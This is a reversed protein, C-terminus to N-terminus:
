VGFSRHAALRGCKYSRHVALRFEARLGSDVSYMALFLLILYAAAAFPGAASARVGAAVSWACLGCAFPRAFGALLKRRDGPFLYVAMGVRLLYAIGYSAVGAWAAGIAGYRAVALVTSPMFVSAEIVKCRADLGPRGVALLLPSITQTLGRFLGVMVLVALLPGAAEWKRGYLLRVLDNPMLAIPGVVALLGFAGVANGRQFARCLDAPSHLHVNSYAPLLVANLVRGLLDVPLSALRYAVLYSGLAVSGVYRAVVLNDFQTTIFTLLGIAFLSRGFTFCDRFAKRDMALAPRYACLRYSLWVRLGSDCLQSVVLAVYNRTFYALVLTVACGLVEAGQRQLVVRKFALEKEFQVLGINQFAAILPSASIILLVLFLRRDRFYMATPWAMGVTLLVLLGARVLDATWVTNFYRRQEGDGGFTRTIIRTRLSFETLVGWASVVSGALGVLGFDSPVLLRALILM